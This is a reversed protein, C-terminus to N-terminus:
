LSTRSGRLGTELDIEVNSYRGATAVIQAIAEEPLPARGLNTHLIIGTANVVRRLRPALEQALREEVKQIVWATLAERSQGVQDGQKLVGRLANIADRVWETAWPGDCLARVRSMAPDDLVTDVKPIKSFDPKSM